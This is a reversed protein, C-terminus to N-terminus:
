PKRPRDPHLVVSWEPHDREAAALATRFAADRAWHSFNAAVFRRLASEGAMWERLEAYGPQALARPPPAKALAAAYRRPLTDRFARPVEKLREAPPRPLLQGPDSGIRLYFQGGALAMTSGRAPREMVQANGAEDFIWAQGNGVFAVIAGQQLLSGAFLSVLQPAAGGSAAGLKVWGRLLYLTARTKDPREALGLPAVLLQTEPGLDATTGDSWELRALRTGPGTQVIAAGAVKLSEAAAFAGSRDLVRADGDLLTIVADGEAAHSAAATLLLLLMALLVAPLSRLYPRM